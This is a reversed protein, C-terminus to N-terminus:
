EEPVLVLTAEANANVTSDSYPLPFYREDGWLKALDSFHPSGPQGSQGPASTAVSKDWDSVDIIERFTAGAMQSFGRGGTAFPTLGYGARSIPGVNLISAMQANVALPHQFTASHLSGWTWQSMDNGCEQKLEKVAAALAAILLADREKAANQPFWPPGPRTLAPVLVEGGRRAYEAALAGPIKSGVLLQLAKQEWVFYITAATSSRLMDKDWGVLQRRAREVDTDDSKLRTLLPVLQEANWAVADHQLKEFDSVGFKKSSTLVERIRNIRAPNAWDYGIPRREGPPLVDNNATALFGSKPNFAHPLDDLSFWGRWEYEGTSGPVPLLGPWNPRVPSLGAAQYGINGDVDAYIFNEAPMKHRALADRFEEWNHARDISLDGLYGVTGPEAGTWRLVVAEHRKADTTIVPGHVTYQYEVDVPDRGKVAIRDNQTQLDIWKGRYEYQKPNDPNLKEIYLDQADTLFVTLGWAIRENHGVSVGPLYPQVAGIVNWGPANLHVLYRLSPHDLQRHPDNALLPRGTESKRGAVVWNNSGEFRSPGADLLAAQKQLESFRSGAGITQLQAELHDDIISLDVEPPVKVPVAPEPPLLQVALRPGVLATLRARFVERLANGEMTFGEARSLIDEPKWLEPEYGAYTFEIPPNKRAITVWANIGKVFQEVIPKADPAYSRWETEVDGRYHMLRALRDREVFDPGLIEALRGQVSRRWLDIQFLRDQAQVFGQAVFLDDVNNAYIHPIGSHDRVVRVQDKLGHVKITGSTQALREFWTEPVRDATVGVSSSKRCAATGLSVLVVCIVPVRTMRRM